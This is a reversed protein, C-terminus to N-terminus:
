RGVPEAFVLPVHWPLLSWLVLSVDAQSEAQEVQMPEEDYQM